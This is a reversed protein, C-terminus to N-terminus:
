AGPESKKLFFQMTTAGCEIIDGDKLQVQGTVKTGNVIPYGEKVAVIFYGEPRRHISAAVEPASAFFGGSRIRIQVRESKGIYTSIGTLEYDVKDVVGKLIRITGIKEAGVGSPGLGLGASAQSARMMEEQKQPSLMVTPEGAPPRMDEKPAAAAEAKEDVFVLAHKTALGIVDNHKLGAKVIRKENLYTGNTSELDEVYFADGVLSIKCHHSSVAPNDVVIDNDPKRGVTVVPKRITYEKIVAANFRLVLKPM